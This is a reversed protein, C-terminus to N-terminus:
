EDGCDQPGIGLSLCALCTVPSVTGEPRVTSTVWEEECRWGRYWIRDGGISRGEFRQGLHVLGDSAIFFAESLQNALTDEHRGM